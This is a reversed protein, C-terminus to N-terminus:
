NKGFPKRRKIDRVLYHYRVLQKTYDSVIIWNKIVEYSKEEHDTFRHENLGITAKDIDNCKYFEYVGSYKKARIKRMPM